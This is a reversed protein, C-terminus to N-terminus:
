QCEETCPELGYSTRTDLDKLDVCLLTHLPGDFHFGTPAIVEYNPGGRGEGPYEVYCLRGDVKVFGYLPYLPAPTIGAYANQENPTARRAKAM